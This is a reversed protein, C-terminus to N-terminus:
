PRHAKESRGGDIGGAGAVRRRQANMDDVEDQFDSPTEENAPQDNGQNRGSFDNDEDNDEDNDM